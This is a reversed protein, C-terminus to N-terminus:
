REPILVNPAACCHVINRAISFGHRVEARREILLTDFLIRERTYEEGRDSHEHQAFRGASSESGLLAM